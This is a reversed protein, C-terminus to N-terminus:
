KEIKNMWRAFMANDIGFVDLTKGVVFNVLEQITTPNHYFAPMAPVIIAGAESVTLMNRLHIISLPTERAVLVLKNREKLCVDACRAILDSSTGSAIRGITGMSCPIIIMGASRYSGSSVGAALNEASWIQLNDFANKSLDKNKFYLSLAEKNQKPADYILGIGLELQVVKCATESFILDVQFSNALLFEVLRIGYISGSAGTVAITLRSDLM